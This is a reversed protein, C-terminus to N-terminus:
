NRENQKGDNDKDIFKDLSGVVYGLCFFFIHSVTLGVCIKIILFNTEM